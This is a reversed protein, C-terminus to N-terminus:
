ISSLFRIPLWVRKSFEPAAADDRDVVGAAHQDLPTDAAEVVVVRQRRNALDQREVGHPLEQTAPLLTPGRDATSPAM